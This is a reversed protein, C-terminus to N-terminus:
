TIGEVASSARTHRFFYSNADRQEAGEDGKKRRNESGNIQRPPLAVRRLLREAQVVSLFNQAASFLSLALELFVRLFQRLGIQWGARRLVDLEHPLDIKSGTIHLRDAANRM